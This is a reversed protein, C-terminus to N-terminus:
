SLGDELWVTLVVPLGPPLILVCFLGLLAFGWKMWTPALFSTPIGFVLTTKGTEILLTDGPERHQELKKVAAVGKLFDAYDLSRFPTRIRALCTFVVRDGHRTLAIFGGLITLVIWYLYDLRTYIALIPEEELHRWVWDLSIIVLIGFGCAFAFIVLNLTDRWNQSEIQAVIWNRADKPTIM